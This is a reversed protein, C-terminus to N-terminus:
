FRDQQARSPRHLAKLYQFHGHLCALLLGLALATLPLPAASLHAINPLGASDGLSAHLMAHRATSVMWCFWVSLGAAHAMLLSVFITKSTFAILAATLLVAPVPSPGWAVDGLQNRLASLFPLLDYGLSYSLRWLWRHGPFLGLAFSAMERLFLLAFVSGSILNWSNLMGEKPRRACFGMM